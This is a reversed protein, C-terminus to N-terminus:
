SLDLSLASEGMCLTKEPGEEFIIGNLLYQFLNEDIDAQSGSSDSNCHCCLISLATGKRHFEGLAFHSRLGFCVEICSNAPAANAIEITNMNPRRGMTPILQAKSM